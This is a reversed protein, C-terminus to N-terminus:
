KCIPGTIYDCKAQATELWTISKGACAHIHEFARMVHSMKESVASELLQLLVYAMGNM